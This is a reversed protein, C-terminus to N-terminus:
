RWRLRHGWQRSRDLVNVLGSLM